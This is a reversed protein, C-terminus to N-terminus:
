KRYFNMYQEKMNKNPNFGLKGYVESGYNLYMDINQQKANFFTGQMANKANYARTMKLIPAIKKKANISARLVPDVKAYKNNKQIQANLAFSFLLLFFFKKTKM